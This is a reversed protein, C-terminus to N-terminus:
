FHRAVQCSAIIRSVVFSAYFLRPRILFTASSLYRWGFSMDITINNCNSNNYTVYKSVSNVYSIISSVIVLVVGAVREVVSHQRAELPVQARLPHRASNNDDDNENDDNNNSTNSNNTTINDNTNSIHIYLNHIYIYIYTCM